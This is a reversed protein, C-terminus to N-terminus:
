WWGRKKDQAKVELEAAVRAPPLVGTLLLVKGSEPISVPLPKVGGVLGQQLGQVEEAFLASKRSAAQDEDKKKDRREARSDNAARPEDLPAPPPAAQVPLAGPGAYQSQQGSENGGVNIRDALIEPAAQLVTWPDRAGPIQPVAAAPRLDGRQYRYRPGEPLLLKWRHDLVPLRVQALELSLQSRGAPIARELVAVIEVVAKAGSEFGLPVSVMGGVGGMGGAGGHVLPRVPQGDVKASWLTAGAPLTLDLSAGARSRSELTFRDRHLLTGDVTMLTTTERLLITADLSPAAPLTAVTLRAGAADAATGPAGGLRWAATLDLAALAESLSPPLDTLDVRSWAKEPLPRADAAIASSIALYRARVDFEPKVAHAASLSVGQALADAAPTSTLVLYGIGQLQHQRHITLSGNEVVPVVSGEDTGAQEVELGPPLEVTFRGLSGRSLEYLIVDHRRPGEPRLQFLTLVVTQALLKGAEASDIKRRLELVQKEGRRAALRVHRRGGQTQEEVVVAGPCSWALDSPLDVETAAVPAVVPAFPLRQIGGEGELPARGAVRVTYKGAAPAVLVVGGGGTVATVAPMATMGALGAAPAGGGGKVETRAPYGSFPLFVPKVPAGQVLVDLESTVAVDEKDVVLSVRQATVEAVPAERRAAQRVREKQVREGTEVLALYDKLPISVEGPRPKDQAALGRVTGALLLVLSLVTRVRRKLVM